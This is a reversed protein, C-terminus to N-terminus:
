EMERFSADQAQLEELLWPIANAGIGRIAKQAVRNEETEPHWHIRGFDSGVGEPGAEICWQSLRKGLYSPERDREMYFGIVVLGSLLVVMAIHFRYRKM